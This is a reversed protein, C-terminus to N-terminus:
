KKEPKREGTTRVEEWEEIASELFIFEENLKLSPIDGKKALREVFSRPLRWRKALQAITLHQPM